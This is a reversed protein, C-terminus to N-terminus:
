AYCLGCGLVKAGVLLVLPCQMPVTFPSVEEREYFTTGRGVGRWKKKGREECLAKFLNSNVHM